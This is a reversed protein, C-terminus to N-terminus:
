DAERMREHIMQVGYELMGLLRYTASPMTYVLRATTFEGSGDAGYNRVMAVAVWDVILGGAEADEEQKALLNCIEGLLEQITQAKAEVERDIEENTM